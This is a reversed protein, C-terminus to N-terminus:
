NTKIRYFKCNDFLEGGMSYAYYFIEKIIYNTVSSKKNFLFKLRGFLSKNYPKIKYKELKDILLLSQYKSILKSRIDKINYKLTSSNVKDLNPISKYLREIEKRLEENSLTINKYTPITEIKVRNLVFNIYNLSSKGYKSVSGKIELFINGEQTGSFIRSDITEDRKHGLWSYSKSHIQVTLTDFEGKSTSSYGYTFNTHLTKNIILQIERNTPIKKLSIGVLFQKDFLSDMVTNLEIMDKCSNLVSIIDQEMDVEVAWIDSPNWRPMSINIKNDINISNICRKFARYIADAVGEGSFAHHFVYQKNINILPM